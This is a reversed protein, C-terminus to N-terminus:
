CIDKRPPTTSITSPKFLQHKTKGNSELVHDQNNYINIWVTAKTGSGNKVGHEVSRNHSHKCNYYSMPPNFPVMLYVM